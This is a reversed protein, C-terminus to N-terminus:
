SKYGTALQKLADTLAQYEAPANYFQASVRLLQRPNLPQGPVPHWPIVPVEIRFRRFLTTQLEIPRHPWDDPLPIVAMSGIMEEPCAPLVDLAQCLQQRAVLALTRNHSMLGAWGQPLLSGMFQIATPVCLYATPDTTGTWDFELHFRSRDRRSSNAGHSIVLPRVIAQRDDRVYLFAAGKPSCLWKHCNGTYYTVGMKKLSLPVMGPAHAGDVLVDIGRANLESILPEIPLVLGTQSTVHDLLVLRTRQTVHSLVSEIVRDPSEIPFPVEAVVVTAGSRQAAVDLANRSANYEHNTTLLEDGPRFVLSQLVTNVGTTANPVFALQAAEAGVFEALTQRAADWLPELHDEFFRLPEAELQSRLQSQKELVATPCAGFSGHNLFIVNPDLSWLSRPFQPNPTLPQPNPTPFPYSTM